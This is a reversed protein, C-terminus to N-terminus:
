LPRKMSCKSAAALGEHYIKSSGEVEWGMSNRVGHNNSKIVNGRILSYAEVSNELAHLDEEKFVRMTRALIVRM